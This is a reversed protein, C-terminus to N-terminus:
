NADFFCNLHYFSSNDYWLPLLPKGSSFNLFYGCATCTSNYIMRRQYIWNAASEICKVLQKRLFEFKNVCYNELLSLLMYRNESDEGTNIYKISKIKGKYCKILVKIDFILKIKIKYHDNFEQEEFKIKVLGSIQGKSCKENLNKLLDPIKIIKLSKEPLLSFNILSSKILSEFYTKTKLPLKSVKQQRINLSKNDSISKFQAKRPLSKIIKELKRGLKRTKQRIREIIKYDTAAGLNDIISDMACKLNYVCDIAQQISLKTENNENM